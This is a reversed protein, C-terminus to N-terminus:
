QPAAFITNLSRLREIETQYRATERQCDEKAMQADAELTAKHEAARTIERHLLSELDAIQQKISATTAELKQEQEAVQQRTIDLIERVTGEVELKADGLVTVKRAVDKLVDEMAWADDAADLALVAAKRASPELAQLGDLVKLAKEASFAVKPVGASTYIDEFNSPILREATSLSSISTANSSTNQAMVSLTDAAHTATSDMSQEVSFIDDVPLLEPDQPKSDQEMQILGAKQLARLFTSM